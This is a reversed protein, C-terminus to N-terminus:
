PGRDRDAHRGNARGPVGAAIAQATRSRHPGPGVYADLNRLQLAIVAQELRAKLASVNTPLADLERATFLGDGPDRMNTPAGNIAATANAQPPFLGDGSVVM